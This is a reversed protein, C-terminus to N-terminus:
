LKPVDKAFVDAVFRRQIKGTATKPLETAIHIRRPIKFPALRTKLYAQLAAENVKSGQSLVVAAEVEQGYLTSPVGFAVAEAVGDFSLLVQDIEIPSIKEGGRVIQEKIRGVLFLHGNPDTFGLDGTRFWEKKGTNPDSHFSEATAKPNNFYEATPHYILITNKWPFVKLLGVRSSMRERSVSKELPLPRYFQEM